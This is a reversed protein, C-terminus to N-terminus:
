KKHQRDVAAPTRKTRYAFVASSHADEKLTIQLQTMESAFM